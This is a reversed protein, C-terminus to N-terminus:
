AGTSGFGGNGRATLGLAELTDVVEFDWDLAPVLELQGVREGKQILWTGQNYKERQNIIERLNRDQLFPIISPVEKELGGGSSELASQILPHLETGQYSIPWQIEGRYDEDIIGVANSQFITNTSIGSRLYGKLFFSDGPATHLGTSIRVVKGFPLLYNEAAYVDFAAARSSGKTPRIANEELFLKVTRM